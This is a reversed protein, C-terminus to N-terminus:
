RGGGIEAKICQCLQSIEGRSAALPDFGAGLKQFIADARARGLKREAHECWKVLAGLDSYREEDNSPVAALTAETVPLGCPATDPEAPPLEPAASPPEAPAPPPAPEAPTPTVFDSAVDRTPPASATRPPGYLASQAGLVHAVRMRTIEPDDTPPDFVLAMVVWPQAARDEPMSTPVGLKRIAANMAKTAALRDIFQRAQYVRPWGSDEDPKQEKATCTRWHDSGDPDVPRKKGAKYPNPIWMIPKDCDRCPAGESGKPVDFKMPKRQKASEAQRLFERTDSGLKETPWGPEGRLDIVVVGPAMRSRTGDLNTVTGLAEYKVRHPDRWDDIQRVTDWDVQANHSIKQLATAGLCVQGAKGPAPYTETEPDITVVRVALRYLDPVKDLMVAPSILNAKGASVMELLNMGLATGASKLALAVAGSPRMALATSPPQPNAAM